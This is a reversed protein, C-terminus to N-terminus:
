RRVAVAHVVHDYEFFVVFGPYVWRTIPPQGVAAQRDAPVGFQREVAAMSQGRTPVAAATPVASAPMDLNQAPLVTPWGSLGCIAVVIAAPTHRRM